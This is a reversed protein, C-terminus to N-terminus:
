NIIPLAAQSWPASFNTTTRSHPGRHGRKGRGSRTRGM